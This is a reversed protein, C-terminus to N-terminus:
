SLFKFIIGFLYRTIADTQVSTDNGYLSSNNQQLLTKNYYYMYTTVYQLNSETQVELLHCFCISLEYVHVIKM